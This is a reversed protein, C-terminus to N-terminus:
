VGGGSPRFASSAAGPLVRLQLELQALVLLEEELRGALEEVGLGRDGGDSRELLLGGPEVGGVPALAGLQTPRRHEDGLGVAASAEGLM